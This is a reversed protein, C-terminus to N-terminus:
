NTYTMLSWALIWLASIVAIAKAMLLTFIATVALFAHLLSLGRYGTDSLRSDPDRQHERQYYLLAGHSMLLSVTQLFWSITGLVGFILLGGSNCGLGKATM